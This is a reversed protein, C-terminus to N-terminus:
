YRRGESLYTLDSFRVLIMFKYRGNSESNARFSGGLRRFPAALDQICTKCRTKRIEFDSGSTVRISANSRVAILGIWTNWATCGGSSRSRAEEVAIEITM